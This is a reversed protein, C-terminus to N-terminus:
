SSLAGGGDPPTLEASTARDRGARKSRYLANDGRRFWDEPSEGPKARAMGISCSMRLIEKDVPLEIERIAFLIRDGQALELGPAIGDLVAVMEDGGFRGVFDEARRCTARLRAAVAKIAKDGVDHGHKDNVWKFHDIDMVVLLPPTSMLVCMETMRKMHADFAARNFLGTLADTEGERKARILASSVDELKASLKDVHERQRQQRSNIATKVNQATLIAERKIMAVDGGVVAERLREVVEVSKTDSATDESVSKSFCEVFAWLSERLDRLSKDIVRQEDKRSQLVFRELADFDVRDGESFGYTRRAWQEFPPLPAAPEDDSEGRAPAESAQIAFQGWTRLAYVLSMLPREPDRDDGAPAGESRSEAHSDAESPPEPPTRDTARRNFFRM